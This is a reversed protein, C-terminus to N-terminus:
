VEGSANCGHVACACRGGRERGLALAAGLAVGRGEAAAAAAAAAAARVHEDRLALCEHLGHRQRVRGRGRWWEGGRARRGVDGEGAVAGRLGAAAPPAAGRQRRAVEPADGIGVLHRRADAQRATVVFIRAASIRALHRPVVVLLLAAPTVARRQSALRAGVLADHAVISFTTRGNTLAQSV